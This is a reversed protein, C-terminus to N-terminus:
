AHRKTNEKLTSVKLDYLIFFHFSLVYLVAIIKVSIKLRDGLLTIILYKTVLTVFYVTTSFTYM